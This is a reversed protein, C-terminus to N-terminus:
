YRSDAFEVWGGTKVLTEAFPSLTFPVTKAAGEARFTIEGRPSKGEPESGGAADIAPLADSYFKM